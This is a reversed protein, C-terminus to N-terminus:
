ELQDKLNFSTYNFSTDFLAQGGNDRQIQALPYRRHPASKLEAAFTEHILDEWTGGNLQSRFPLTNLFLGIIREGDAVEPRGNSVLGTVVDSRGSLTAIVQIHAALLINKLPVSTARALQALKQSVDNSLQVHSSQFRENENDISIPPAKTTDADSLWDLWFQRSEASTRAAKELAVYDRFSASLPQAVATGNNLIEVYLKLLETLFVADSWGDFIAHHATFTFQLSEDTVRHVHFRLLPAQTLDFPSHQEVNM